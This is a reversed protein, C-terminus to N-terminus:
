YHYMFIIPIRIKVKFATPANGEGSSDTAADIFGFMEDVMQSDDVPANRNREARDLQERKLKADQRQRMEEERIDQEIRALREQGFFAVEHYVSIVFYTM